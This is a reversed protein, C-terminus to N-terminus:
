FHVEQDGWCTQLYEIQAAHSIAHRGPLKMLWTMPVSWGFGSDLTTGIAVPTLSDLAALVEDTGKRFIRVVEKRSAIAAEETNRQALWESLNDSGPLKVDRIM